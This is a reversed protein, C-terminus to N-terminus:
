KRQLVPVVEHQFRELSRRARDKPMGVPALIGSIFAERLPLDALGDVLPRLQTAVEEPTGIVTGARVADEWQAAEEDCGELDSRGQAWRLYSGRTHLVGRRISAWADDADDGIGIPLFCGFSFPATVGHAGRIALVEKVKELLQEPGGATSPPFYGDAELAARKIAPESAGGLFIPIQHGPVPTIRIDDYRLQDGDTSFRGGSWADRLMSVLESMRKGRARKEVGFMRYEEESWGLGLGLRLRGGSILDVVAADEAIRIPDHLPALLVGTGIGINQTRAAVAALFALTSPIYGDESGHHEALWFSHYGLEDAYQALELADAYLERYSRTEWSPRQLTMQGFAFSVTM